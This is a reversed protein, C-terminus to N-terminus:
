KKEHPMITFDYEGRSDLVIVKFRRSLDVAYDPKFDFEDRTLTVETMAALIERCRQVVGVDSERLLQALTPDHGELKKAVRENIDAARVQEECFRFFEIHSIQDQSLAVFKPPIRLSM